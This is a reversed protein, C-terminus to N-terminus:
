CGQRTGNNGENSEPVRSPTDVDVTACTARIYPQGAGGSQGVSIPSAPAWSRGPDIRDRVDITRDTAGPFATVHVFFPTTVPASGRNDVRFQLQVGDMLTIVPVLDPLGSPPPPPPPPAGSEPRPYYVVTVAVPREGCRAPMPQFPIQWTRMESLSINEDGGWKLEWGVDGTRRFSINNRYVRGDRLTTDASVRQLSVESLRAQVSFSKYPSGPSVRTGTLPGLIEVRPASRYRFDLRRSVTRGDSGHVVLVYAVTDATPAPDRIGVDSAQPWPKGPSASQEYIVRIPGREPDGHLANIKVRQINSGGPPASVRYSLIGRASDPLQCDPVARFENIVPLDLAGPPLKPGLLPPPTKRLPVPITPPPTLPTPKIPTPDIALAVGSVMVVMSISITLFVLKKM